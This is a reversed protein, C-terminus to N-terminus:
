LRSIKCYYCTCYCCVAANACSETADCCSSSLCFLNLYCFYCYGPKSSATNGSFYFTPFFFTSSSTVLLLICHCDSLASSAGESAEGGGRESERQWSTIYGLLLLLLLCCAPRVATLLRHRQVAGARPESCEQFPTTLKSDQRSALRLGNIAGWFRKMMRRPSPVRGFGGTASHRSARLVLEVVECATAAATALSCQPQGVLFLVDLLKLYNSTQNSTYTSM